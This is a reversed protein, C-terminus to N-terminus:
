PDVVWTTNGGLPGSMCTASIVPRRTEPTRSSRTVSAMAEEISGVIPIKWDELFQLQKASRKRNRTIGQVELAFLTGSSRHRVLLDPFDQQQVQYGCQRLGEVIAPETADRRKARRALSV